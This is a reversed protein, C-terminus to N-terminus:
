IADRQPNPKLMYIQFNCLCKFMWDVANILHDVINTLIGYIIKKTLVCHKLATTKLTHDM